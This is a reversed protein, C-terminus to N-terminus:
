LYKIKDSFVESVVFETNKFKQKLLYRLPETIVNETKFHGADVITIGMQNASLIQSHKIEGTVFADAGKLKAESVFEGGSGSCVAVTKIKHSNQTYRVGECSLQKKVFKALETSTLTKELTGILGISYDKNTVLPTLNKLNLAKALHFNVGERAVDLNTHACIANIKYKILSAIPSDFEIKKLPKFIVPHHSIILEASLNNAEECVENTIDLSILVKKITCNLDGVLLGCNDFNMSKEFPAIQDLFQYIDKVTNM